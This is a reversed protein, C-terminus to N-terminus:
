NKENVVILSQRNDTSVPKTCDEDQVDKNWGRSTRWIYFPHVFTLATLLLFFYNGMEYHNGSAVVVKFIPVACFTTLGGVVRTIGYLKGFHENPFCLSIFAATTGVMFSRFLCGSVITLVQVELNRITPLWCSLVALLICICISICNSNLQLEQNSMKPNRKQLLVRSLDVVGGVLPALCVAESMQVLGFIDTMRSVTQLEDKCPVLGSVFYTTWANFSSIFYNWRIVLVGFYFVNWVFLWSALSTKFKPVESFSASSKQKTSKFKFTYGPISSADFPISHKPMLTFTRIYCISTAITYFLFMKQISYGNTYLYKFLLFMFTSSGFLGNLLTIVLARVSPFLNSIQINTVLLGGGGSGILPLAFYLYHATQRNVLSLLLCGTTVQIAAVIRSVRTGYKDLLFGALLCGFNIMSAGVVYISTFIEDQIACPQPLNSNQACDDTTVNTMDTTDTMGMTMNVDATDYLYTARETRPEICNETFFGEMKFVYVLSSWGLIAGSFFLCELMGSILSLYKVFKFNRDAATETVPPNTTTTIKLSYTSGMIDADM